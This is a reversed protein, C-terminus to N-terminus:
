RRANLLRLLHRAVKRLHRLHDVRGLQSGVARSCQAEVLCSSLGHAIGIVVKNQILNPRFRLM